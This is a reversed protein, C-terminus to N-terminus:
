LKKVTFVNLITILIKENLNINENSIYDFFPIFIIPIKKIEPRILIWIRIRKEMLPIRLDTDFNFVSWFCQM